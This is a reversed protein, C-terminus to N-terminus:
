LGALEVSFSLITAREMELIGSAIDIGFGGISFPTYTSTDLFLLTLWVVPSKTM